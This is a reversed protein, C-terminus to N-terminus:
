PTGGGGRLHLPLLLAGKLLIGESWKIQPVWIPGYQGMSDIPWYTKKDLLSVHRRTPCSSMGVQQVLICTKKDLLKAVLLCTKKNLLFVCRSTWCSSMAEPGVLLRTKKHLISVHKGTPYSSVDEQQALLRRRRTRCSSMAGQVLLCTKKGM